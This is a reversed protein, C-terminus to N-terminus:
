KVQSFRTFACDLARGKRRQVLIKLGSDSLSALHGAGVPCFGADLADAGGDNQDLRLEALVDAHRRAGHAIEAQCPQADDVRAVAPGIDRRLACGRAGIMDEVPDFQELGNFRRDGVARQQERGGRAGVILGLGHHRRFRRGSLRGRLDRGAAMDADQEAALAGAQEVLLHRQGVADDGIGDIRAEGREIQRLGHQQHTVFPELQHRLRASGNAM